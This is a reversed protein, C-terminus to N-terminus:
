HCNLLHVEVLLGLLIEDDVLDEHHARRPVRINDVVDVREKVLVLQPDHHLVHLAARERVNDSRVQHSFALDSRHAPLRALAEFVKMPVSDDMPVNLAVIDKQAQRAIDFKTRKRERGGNSESPDTSQSLMQTQFGVKPETRLDRVRCM